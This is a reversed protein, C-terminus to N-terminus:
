KAIEAPFFKTDFALTQGIKVKDQGERIYVIAGESVLSGSAPSETPHRLGANPGYYGVVHGKIGKNENVIVRDDMRLGYARGRDLYVWAGYRHIIQPASNTLTKEIDLITNVVAQSDIVWQKTASQALESSISREAITSGFIADSVLFQITLSTNEARTKTAQTKRSLQALINYNARTQIPMSHAALSRLLLQDKPTVQAKQTIEFRLNKELCVESQFNQTM